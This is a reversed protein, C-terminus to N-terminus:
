GAILEWEGGDRRVALPQLVGNERISAALSRLAEDGFQTRPQNPNPRIFEVPIYKLRNGLPRDALRM